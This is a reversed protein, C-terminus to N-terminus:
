ATHTSIERKFIERQVQLFPMHQFQFSALHLLLQLRPPPIIVANDTVVNVGDKGTLQTGQPITQSTSSGNYFTITGRAFEANQHGRGTAPSIKSETITIPKLLYSLIENPSPNSVALINAKLSLEKQIPILTIITTPPNFLVYIQFAIAFIPLLSAIFCAIILGFPHTKNKSKDADVVNNRKPEEKYIYLHITEIEEDQSSNCNTNESQRNIDKLIRTIEDDKTQNEQM